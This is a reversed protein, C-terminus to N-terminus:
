KIRLSKHFMPHIYYKTEENVDEIEYASYSEFIYEKTNESSLKIGILGIEYLVIIIEKLIKITDYDSGFSKFLAQFHINLRLVDNNSISEMFSDEAVSKIEELKFGDKLGKLFSYLCYINGYNEIWEDNLAKLREHSYEDEAKRIIDRSLKTKGDANKICKNFFDIVDRPRLFTREVIYDFGSVQKKNAVPLIDDVTPSESTYSSKM